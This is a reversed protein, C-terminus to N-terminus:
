SYVRYVAYSIGIGLFAGSFIDSPYHVGAAVRSVGMFVSALFFVSGWKKDFLYIAASLAFFFIAHNSPFSFGSEPILQRVEYAMFPRPRHYLFHIAPSVIGRSILTSISVVWLFRIKEQYPHRSIWVFLLFLVILLYALYHAFFIIFADVVGSREALSNFLSFTNVDLARIAAIM